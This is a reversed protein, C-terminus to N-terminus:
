YMMHGNYSVQLDSSAVVRTSGSDTWVPPAMPASTQFVITQSSTVVPVKGVQLM